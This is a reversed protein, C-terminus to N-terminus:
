TGGGHGSYEVDFLPTMEQENQRRGGMSSSVHYHVMGGEEEMTELIIRPTLKVWSMLSAHELGYDVIFAAVEGDGAPLMGIESRVQIEEKHASITIGSSMPIEKKIPIGFISVGSIIGYIFIKDLWAPPADVIFPQCM